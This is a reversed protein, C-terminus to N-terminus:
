KRVEPIEWVEDAPGNYKEVKYVEGNKVIYKM